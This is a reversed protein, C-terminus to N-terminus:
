PVGHCVYGCSSLFVTFGPAYSGTLLIKCATVVGQRITLYQAVYILFLSLMFAQSQWLLLQLALLAFPSPSQFREAIDRQNGTAVYRALHLKTGETLANEFGRM